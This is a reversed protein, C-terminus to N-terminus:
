IIHLTSHFQFDYRTLWSYVRLGSLCFVIHVCTWWITATYQCFHHQQKSMYHGCHARGRLTGWSSNASSKQLMDLTRVFYNQCTTFSKGQNWRKTHRDQFLHKHYFQMWVFASSSTRKPFVGPFFFIAKKRVQTGVQFLRVVILFNYNRQCDRGRIASSFCLKWSIGFM